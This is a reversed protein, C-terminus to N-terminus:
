ATERAVKVLSDVAYGHSKVYEIIKAASQNSSISETEIVLEPHLPPEYPDQPGTLNTIEGKEAKKYLGKPDRQRCTEASAKVWVEIFGQGISDRAYQRFSRFPSILAVITTVDNRSLIKSLYVVRRAHLERDNKSFGLDPSLHKRVEDGDLVEVHRSNDQLSKEILRAITTKGAGPLGTLWIVPSSAM